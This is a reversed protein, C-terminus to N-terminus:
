SSLQGKAKCERSGSVFGPTSKRQDSNTKAKCSRQTTSYTWAKCGDLTSCWKSCESWSPVNGKEVKVEVGYKNEVLDGGTYEVNNEPCTASVLFCDVTM